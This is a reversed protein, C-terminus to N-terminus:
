RLDFAVTGVGAGGVPRPQPDRGEFVQWGDRTPRGVRIGINEVGTRSGRGDGAHFQRPGSFVHRVMLPSQEVFVSAACPGGHCMCRGTAYGDRKRCIFVAMPFANSIATTIKIGPPIVVVTGSHRRRQALARVCRGSQLTAHRSKECAESKRAQVGTDVLSGRARQGSGGALRLLRSRAGNTEHSRALLLNLHPTRPSCRRMGSRTFKTSTEWRKWKKNNNAVSQGIAWLGGDDCLDFRRV